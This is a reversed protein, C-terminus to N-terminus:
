QHLDTEYSINYCPVVPVPVSALLRPVQGQPDM